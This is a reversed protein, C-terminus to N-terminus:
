YIPLTGPVYEQGAASTTVTTGDCAAAQSMWCYGSGSNHPKWAIGIVSFHAEHKGNTKMCVQVM